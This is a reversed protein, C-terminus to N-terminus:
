PSGNMDVDNWVWQYDDPTDSPTTDPDTINYMEVIKM